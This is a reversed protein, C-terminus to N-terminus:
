NYGDIFWNLIETTMAAVNLHDEFNYKNKIEDSWFTCEIRIHDKDNHNKLLIASQSQLSKGSKDFTHKANEYSVLKKNPFIKTISDEIEKKKSLCKQGKVRLQGTVTRITYNKDKRKLYIDVNDYLNLSKFYAVVYYRKGDVYNRKNSNIETESMYDLLSDGISMGEIQFESIDDANVSSHLGFTLFILAIFVRVILKNILKM